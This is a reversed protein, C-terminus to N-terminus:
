KKGKVLSKEGITRKIYEGNEYVGYVNPKVKKGNVIDFYKKFDDNELIYDIIRENRETVIDKKNGLYESNRFYPGLKNSMKVEESYSAILFANVVMEYTIEKDKEVFLDERSTILRGIDSDKSVAVSDIIIGEVMSCYSIEFFFPSLINKTKKDVDNNILIKGVNIPNNIMIYDSNEKNYSYEVVEM